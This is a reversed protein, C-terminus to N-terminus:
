FDFCCLSVSWTYSLLRVDHYVFTLGQLSLNFHKFTGMLLLYGAELGINLLELFRQHLNFLEEINGSRKLKTPILALLGGSDDTKIIKSPDHIVKEESEVFIILLDVVPYLRSLHLVRLPHFIELASV